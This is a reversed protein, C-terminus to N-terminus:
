LTWLEARLTDVTTAPSRRALVALDTQDIPGPRFAPSSLLLSGASTSLYMRSSVPVRHLEVSVCCEEVQLIQSLGFDPSVTPPILYNLATDDSVLKLRFGLRRRKMFWDTFHQCYGAQISTFEQIELNELRTWNDIPTYHDDLNDVKRYPSFLPFVYEM